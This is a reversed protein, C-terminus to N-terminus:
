FRKPDSSHTQGWADGQWRQSLSGRCFTESFYREKIAPQLKGLTAGEWFLFFVWCLWFISLCPRILSFKACVSGQKDLEHLQQLWSNQLCLFPFNLLTLVAKAPKEAEPQALYVGFALVPRAVAGAVRETALVHVLWSREAPSGFCSM